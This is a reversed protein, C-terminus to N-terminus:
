VFLHSAEGFKPTEKIPKSWIIKFGFNKLMSLNAKEEFGSWYMKVGGGFFDHRYSEPDDILHFTLLVVGKVKLIRYFSSLLDYHEVRPVHIISYYSLIGNFYRDPFTIKTMDKCIFQAKPANQIALEIQKESIDVGIVKFKDNSYRSYAGNGCGADLVQGGLPIRSIFNALLNLKDSGEKELGFLEQLTEAVKNYGKRVIEKKEM